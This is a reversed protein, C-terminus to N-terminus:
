RPVAPYAGGPAPARRRCAPWHLCLDIEDAQATRLDFPFFARPGLAGGAAPAALREGLPTRAAVAAADGRVGDRLPRGLVVRPGAAPSADAADVLRLLPAADGHDLAARVAGPRRRPDRPQLRLRVDPGVLALATLRRRGGRGRGDYAVGRLPASAPSRGAARPRRGTRASAAAARRACRRLTPAMARYRSAGSRTPTTPSSRGLRAAIREVHDPHERAYALALKTGYSIGFLTLKDVGLAQRVAEVDEVSDRTTYFARRAGLGTACDAGAATSRLRGDRELRHCRLL